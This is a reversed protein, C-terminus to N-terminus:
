PAPSLCGRYYAELRDLYADFGFRERAVRAAEAGLRLRFEEDEALRRLAGALRDPDGPPVLLGSVGDEIAEPTGGATSAVVPLGCSMAELPVAAFPEDWLSPFVLVDAAHCLERVRSRDVQGHLVVQGAAGEDGITQELFALFHPTGSGCVDLRAQVGARLLRGLARVAVQPGKGEWLSGVYLLRLPTDPERSARAAPSFVGAPVGIHNVAIAADAFGAQVYFRKIFHSVAVMRRPRVLLRLWPQLVLPASGVLWRKWRIVPKLLGPLDRLGHYLWKDFLHVVTPAPGWEAAIAPALSALYLNWIVVLEPRLEGLARRTARFSAPSFVHQRFAEAPTPVRGGLFTEAKRDLDIELEARLEPRGALLRGRGCLVAVDHGRSRLGRVVDECLMENGGVVYPPYLNTVFLLRM